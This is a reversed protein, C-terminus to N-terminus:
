EQRSTEMAQRDRQIQDLTGQIDNQRAELIGGVPGFLYKKLVAVLLLFGVIQLLLAQWSIALM